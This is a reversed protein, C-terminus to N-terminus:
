PEMGSMNNINGSSGGNSKSMPLANPSLVSSSSSSASWATLHRFTNQRQIGLLLALVFTSILASVIFATNVASTRIRFILMGNEEDNVEEEGDNLYHSSSSGAAAGQWLAASFSKRYDVPLMMKTLAICAVFYCIMLSSVIHAYVSRSSSKSGAAVRNGMNSAEDTTNPTTALSSSSSTSSDHGYMKRYLLLIRRYIYDVTRWFTRVQSISLVATLLLSIFQSLTNYDQQTMTVYNNGILWLMGMTVPDSGRMTVSILGHHHRWVFLMASGLRMLLVISFVVGLWSNVQGMTTRAMSVAHQAQRMESLEDKMEEVLVNLFDMETLLLRRRQNVGETLDTFRKGGGSGAAGSSIAARSLITTVRNWGGTSSSGGSSSPANATNSNSPSVAHHHDCATSSSSGSGGGTPLILSVTGLDARREELLGQAKSLEMEAKSISEPRIPELYLGALCSYPMSVSGFGNLCASLLIGIACLWSVATSLLLTMTIATNTNSSSAVDGNNNNHNNAAAHHYAITTTTTRIFLPAVIALIGMTLLVGCISGLVVFFLGRRGRGGKRNNSAATTTASTPSSTFMSDKSSSSTLALIPGSGSSTSSSSTPSSLGGAGSSRGGGGGGGGGGRIRGLRRRVYYVLRLLPIILVVHLVQSTLSVTICLTRVLCSRTRRKEMYSTNKSKYTELWVLLQHALQAGLLCPSLVLVFISMCGLLLRYVLVLSEKKRLLITWSSPTAELISLALLMFSLSSATTLIWSFSSASSSAATKTSSAAATEDSIGSSLLLCKPLYSSLALSSALLTVDM